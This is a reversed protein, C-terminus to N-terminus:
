GSLCRREAFGVRGGIRDFITFVDQLIVDGLIWYPYDAHPIFAFPSVCMSEEGERYRQMYFDSSTPLAFHPFVLELDRQEEVLRCPKAYIGWENDHFGLLTNIRQVEEIPGVIAPMKTDIEFLVNQLLTFSGIDLRQLMIQWKFSPVLEVYFIPENYLNPDIEGFNLQADPGGPLCNRHCTFYLTFISTKIVNNALMVDLVTPIDAHEHVKALALAGSIEDDDQPPPANEALGFPVIGIPIGDISMHDKVVKGTVFSGHYM